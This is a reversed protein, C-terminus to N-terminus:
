DAFSAAPQDSQNVPSPWAGYEDLGKVRVSEGVSRILAHPLRVRTRSQKTFRMNRAKNQTLSMWCEPMGAPKMHGKLSPPDPTCSPPAPLLASHCRPVPHPMVPARERVLTGQLDRRSCPPLDSSAAAVTLIPCCGSPVLRLFGREGAVDVGATTRKKQVKEM